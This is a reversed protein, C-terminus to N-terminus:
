DGRCSVREVGIQQGEIVGGLYTYKTAITSQIYDISM